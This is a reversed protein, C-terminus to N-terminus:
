HLRCPKSSQAHLLSLQMLSHITAKKKSSKKVLRARRLQALITVKVVAYNAPKVIYDDAGIELLDVIVDVDEEASLVILPVTSRARIYQCLRKGTTDPLNLDLLCLDFQNLALRSKAEEGSGATVPTFGLEKVMQVLIKRTTINDEIILVNKQNHEDELTRTKFKSTM